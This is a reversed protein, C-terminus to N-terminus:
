ICAYRLIVGVTVPPLLALFWEMYGRDVGFLEQINGADRRGIYAQPGDAVNADIKQMALQKM